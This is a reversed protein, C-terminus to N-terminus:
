IKLLNRGLLCKLYTEQRENSELAAHFERLQKAREDTQAPLEEDTLLSSELLDSDKLKKAFKEMGEASLKKKRPPKDEDMQTVIVLMQTATVDM